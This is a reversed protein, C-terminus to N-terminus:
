SLSPPAVPPKVIMMTSDLQIVGDVRQVGGRDVKAQRQKRPGVETLLFPRDLQVRQQIQATVYRGVYFYRVALHMVYVDEIVQDRFRARVVYHVPPVDVKSPQVPQRLTTSEEHGSGFGIELEV